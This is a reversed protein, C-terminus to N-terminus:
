VKSFEDFDAIAKPVRRSVLQGRGKAGGERAVCKELM